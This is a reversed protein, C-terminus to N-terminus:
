DEKDLDLDLNRLRELLTPQIHYYRSYWPDNEPFALTDNGQLKLLAQKLFKSRGQRKVFRDAEKVFRRRLAGDSFKAMQIYAQLLFDGIFQGVVVPTETFGFANYVVKFEFIIYFTVIGM